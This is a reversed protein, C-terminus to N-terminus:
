PVDAALSRTAICGGGLDRQIELALLRLGYPKQRFQVQYAKLTKLIEVEVPMANEVPQGSYLYIPTTPYHTQRLRRIVDRSTEDVLQWDLVFADYRRVAVASDFSDVDSFADVRLGCAQLVRCVILLLTEDDDLVAVANGASNAPTVVHM